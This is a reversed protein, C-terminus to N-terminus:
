EVVEFTTMMGAGTHEAIHCHLMWHGPNSFEVLIDITAGAPLLVTDKWGRTVPEVGNVRLVIFRQGHFHIPHQMAHISNRQNVLRMRVVEGRRFRLHLSDNEAGSAADRIFWNAQSASTAWNMMPMTGSWEVPHFYSSDLQMMRATFWPLDRTRLGFHLTHSPKGNQRMAESRAITDLLGARTTLLEFLSGSQTAAGGSVSISALTDTEALFDGFLHDIGKVRNLLQSNGGSDFKVDVAYREAPAIVISEVWVDATLPSMDTAVLKMRANTFSLNFTRTAAANTLWFRVVEGPRAAGSWRPEGNVLMLNGFRGMLAHTAETAGYPVLGDNGILIDDLLLIEERHVRPLSSDGRVMINGALGLDQQMDERVHSHYWYLGADPFRVHYTFSTGPDVPPQSLHPVGDFRHDLRVGHWHITSPQDIANHFKVVIAADKPVSLLPGPIQGNFGYMNYERGHMRRRVIGSTLELTDGNAVRLVETQRSAQVGRGATDPLRAGIRPRLSMEAPLMTLNAPMPVTTWKASTADSTTPSHSHTHSSASDMFMGGLTFEQVDPPQLRTSPSSGRLILKGTRETVTASSEASIIILFKDFSVSPLLNVGNTVEGLKILPTLVPTTAWALYTRFSGLTSPDPLGTITIRPSYLQSGESNVAVTFPGGPHALEVTGSLSDPLGPAPTLYLCYLDRSPSNPRLSDSDGGCFASSTTGAARACAMAALLLLAPLVTKRM